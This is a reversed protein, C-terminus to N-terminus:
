VCLKLLSRDTLFKLKEIGRQCILNSAYICMRELGELHFRLFNAHLRVQRALKTQYEDLVCKFFNGICKYIIWTTPSGHVRLALVVMKIGFPLKLQFQVALRWTWSCLLLNPIKVSKFAYYKLWRVVGDPWPGWFAAKVLSEIKFGQSSISSVQCASSSQGQSM